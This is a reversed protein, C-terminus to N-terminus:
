IWIEFIIGIWTSPFVCVRRVQFPIVLYNMCLSTTIISLGDYLKKLGAHGIFFPRLRKYALRNVATALPVSLFFLYYGAYFGHWFASCFYTVMLSNGNRSYVYRELWAQTAKNWSRSGERVSQALEFGSINM